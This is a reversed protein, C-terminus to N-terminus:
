DFQCDEEFEKAIENFKADRLRKAFEQNIAKAREKLRM